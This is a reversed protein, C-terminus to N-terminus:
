DSRRRAAAAPDHARGRARAGGRRRLHAPERRSLRRAVKLAKLYVRDAEPRKLLRVILDESERALSRTICDISRSAM